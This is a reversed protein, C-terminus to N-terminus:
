GEESIESASLEIAEFTGGREEERETGKRPAGVEAGLEM